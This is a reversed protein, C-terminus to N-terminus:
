TRFYKTIQDDNPCFKSAHYLTSIRKQCAPHLHPVLQRMSVCMRNEHLGLMHSANPTPVPDYDMKLMVVTADATKYRDRFDAFICARAAAGRTLYFHRVLPLSVMGHRRHDPSVAQPMAAGIPHTSTTRPADYCIGSYSDTLTQHVVYCRAAIPVYSSRGDPGTIIIM